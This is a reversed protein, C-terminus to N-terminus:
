ENVNHKKVIKIWGPLDDNEKPDPILDNDTGQKSFDIKSFAIAALEKELDYQNFSDLKEQFPLMDEESLIASFKAIVDEKGKTEVQQKFEKLAQNEQELDVLKQQLVTDNNTNEEGSKAKLEEYETNLQEYKTQLEEMEKDNAITLIVEAPEGVFSLNDDIIEYKQLFTKDNSEDVFVVEESNIDVQAISYKLERTDDVIENLISYLKYKINDEDLNLNFQLMNSGGKKTKEEKNDKISSFNVVKKDEIEVLSEELNRILKGLQKSFAIPNSVYYSGINASEFAPPVDKGLICLASFKAKTIHFFEQNDKREWYGELSEEDLEMSQPRGDQIVAVVEPYRGTWLYGTCTLYERSTGDNEVVNQWGIEAGEPVFGYPKTTQIFKIDDSTIEIRGGHDKFDEITEIFEGVIPINYLTESMVNAVEKEIYINNQNLGPYLIKIFCKSFLDNIPEVDSIQINFRTVGQLNEPRAILKPM